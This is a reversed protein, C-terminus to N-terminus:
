EEIVWVPLYIKLNKKINIIKKITDYYMQQYKPESKTTCEIIKNSFIREADSCSILFDPIDISKACDIKSIGSGKTKLNIEVGLENNLQSSLVIKSNAYISDPCVYFYGEKPQNDKKPVGVTLIKANQKGWPGDGNNKIKRIQRSLLGEYELGTIKNLITIDSPNNKERIIEEIKKLTIDADLSQVEIPLLKIAISIDTEKHESTMYILAGVFIACLIVVIVGEVTLIGLINAKGQGGIVDQRFSKSFILALVVAVLLFILIIVTLFVMDM